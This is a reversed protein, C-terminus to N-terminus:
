KLAADFNTVLTAAGFDHRPDIVLFRSGDPLMAISTRNTNVNVRFLPTAAGLEISSGIVSVAVSKVTGDSSLYLIERGDGRWWARIIPENSIQWKAGLHPYPAVFAARGTTDANIYVIWRGDPSVVGTNQQGAGGILTSVPGGALPMAMVDSQSDGDFIVRGDRTVDTTRLLSSGEAIKRENASGDAPKVYLQFENRPSLVHFVIDRGDRTWIPAAAAGPVFQLRSRVGKALDHIFVSGTPDGIVLAVKQGDPSIAVDRYTDEPAIEGTQKGTRDFWVLHSNYTASGKYTALMGESSVSVVTRWTGPDSLVNDWVPIPSGDFAGGHIHRAVLKNSQVYLLDDRYPVASSLTSLLKHTEKGDLASVWVGTEAASPNAHTAALYVFHKGDPLMAPWRHTTFPLEPVTVAVPTGGNAPVRDIGGRTFPTFLIQGDAGWCGGRGDAADAIIRPAAGEIDTVMLKAFAFFAISRSDPSWFPFMARETGPLPTATGTTLAQLWLMSGHESAAAFVAYRGDPSLTLPGAADGVVLFQWKEPPVISSVIPRRPSAPNRKGVWWGALSALAITILMLIAAIATRSSGPPAVATVSPTSLGSQIWELERKVDHASQWRDDPDKDLCTRVLRELSPPTLPQLESMPPPDRELIAAIASATTKGEFARRGTVMEYLLAGLAFIDTRQDVPQGQLQEPAMYQLTGVIAGEATLPKQQTADGAALAFPASAALGFDLLKAGTKTLMVNGPKLDRHVIGARHARGLADAIQIGSRLVERLPLAGRALRDALSEGEVLEMVLYSTGNEEGIDHLTCIHPHNLQSITKAEREFRLKFQLDKALEAPLIKIAVSRDLRTDRAKYVEGMGGAGIPAVIEYPGLRSGAIASM